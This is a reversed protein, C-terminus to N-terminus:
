PKLVKELLRKVAAEAQEAGEVNGVAIEIAQQGANRQGKRVADLRRGVTLEEAVSQASDAEPRQEWLCYFVHLLRDRVRFTYARVPLEIGNIRMQRLGLDEQMVWGGAALCIEPGHSRALQASTRGPDWRIFFMTWQLGDADQWGASRADTYRLISRTIESFEIDRYGPQDTPWGLTWASAKPTRSENVRYWMETGAEVVIFWLALGILIAKPPPAGPQLLEAEMTQEGARARRWNLIVCLIGVGVLSGILVGMGVSDHWKAVAQTGSHASVWVLFFARSANCVYAVGLAGALLIVRRIIGFRLLEGMFLAIMLTTQLSRVGSCAEEVGVRGTSIEIVNGKQVAPIEAWSLAEVCIGTVSRMLWQVLANEIPMPWPVAILFFAVPFFFHIVWPRGGAFYVASLSLAVCVGGLMWGVLRWDPASEQVLRIPLLLVAFPLLALLVGLPSRVPEAPPRYKWRELFLYAALFPVAWGYAYQPNITWEFRLQRVAFFWLVGLVAVVPWWPASAEQREARADSTANVADAM